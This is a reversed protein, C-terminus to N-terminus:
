LNWQRGADEFTKGNSGMQDRSGGQPDPLAPAIRVKPAFFFESLQSLAFAGVGVVTNRVRGGSVLGSVAAGSHRCM